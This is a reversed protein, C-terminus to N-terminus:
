PAGCDTLLAVDRCPTPAEGGFQDCSPVVEQREHAADAAVLDEAARHVVCDPLRVVLGRPQEPQVHAAPAPRRQRTAKKRKRGKKGRARQVPPIRRRAGFPQHECRIM